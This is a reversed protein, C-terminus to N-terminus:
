LGRSNMGWWSVPLRMTCHTCVCHKCHCPAPSTNCHAAAPTTHKHGCHATCAMDGGAAMHGLGQREANRDGIQDM